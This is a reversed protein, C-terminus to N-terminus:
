SLRKWINITLYPPMISFAAGSGLNVTQPQATNTTGTTPSASGTTDGGSAGSNMAPWDSRAVNNLFNKATNGGAARPGYAIFHSHAPQTHTHAATTASHTHSPM